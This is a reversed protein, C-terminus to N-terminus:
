DVTTNKKMSSSPISIETESEHMAVASDYQHM